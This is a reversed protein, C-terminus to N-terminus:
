ETTAQMRQWLQKGLEEREEPTMSQFRMFIEKQEEEPLTRVWQILAQIDIGEMEDEEGEEKEIKVLTAVTRNSPTLYKAAVASVEEPTVAKVREMDELYTRWSGRILESFGLQFAIGYNSGLSRVMQADIRNRLRQLERETPPEQKIVEIEEYIAQEVEETTHPHRPEAVIALLNPLKSGPEAGVGPPSSTLELEEYIKKYFRSTRGQGLVAMLVELAYADPHPAVPVHYGILLKPSADFELVVRREGKQEPEVTVVAPPPTQARIRGFYKKALMEVEAPDIDGVLMATANNPAYYQKFYAEVEQRTMMEIDSMWGVVPRGYPSAQFATAAFVDWLESDPDNEGLRREEMVVDRESYFERFVADKMRDSELMMWLELRNAPLAVIYATLDNATFANLMRGGNQKYTDWLEDKVVFQKHERQAKALELELGKLYRYKEFYDVGPEKLLTPYVKAEQPTATSNALMETLATLEAIKDAGATGKDEETQSAMLERSFEDFIELRWDGIQPRVDMIELALDDIKEIYKLERRYNTTGVTSTGKFMMHELLHSIGTIGDRENISGVDFGIVGFFTPSVNREVVIFKMGNDLYFETVKEALKESFSLAPMLCLLVVLLVPLAYKKM